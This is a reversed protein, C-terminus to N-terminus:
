KGLFLAHIIFDSPSKKFKDVIAVKRKFITLNRSEIWGDNQFVLFNDEKKVNEVLHRVKSSKFKLTM